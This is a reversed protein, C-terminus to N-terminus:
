WPRECVVPSWIWRNVEASFGRSGVGAGGLVDRMMAKKKERSRGGKGRVRVHWGM